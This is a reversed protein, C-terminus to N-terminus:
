PQNHQPGFTDAFYLKGNKVRDPANTDLMRIFLLNQPIGEFGHTVGLDAALDFGFRPYYDQHGLVVVFPVRDCLQEIAHHILDGGIGSRQHSPSVAMPALGIGEIQGSATKIVVPSFFIHGVIADPLVEDTHEVAVYEPAQPFTARLSEVLEAEGQHGFESESFASIIVERIAAYDSTTATRYTSM